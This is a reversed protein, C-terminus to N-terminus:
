KKRYKRSFGALGALGSSLLLMTTPEPVPAATSEVKFDFWTNEDSALYEGNSFAASLDADSFLSQSLILQAISFSGEVYVNGVGYKNEAWQGNINLPNNNTRDDMPGITNSFINEGNVYLSYKSESFDYTGALWVLDYTNIDDDAVNNNVWPPGNWSYMFHKDAEVRLDFDGISDVWAKGRM